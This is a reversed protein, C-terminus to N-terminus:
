NGKWNATFAELFHFALVVVIFGKAIASQVSRRFEWLAGEFLYDNNLV